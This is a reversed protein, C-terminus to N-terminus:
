KTLYKKVKEIDEDTANRIDSLKYQWNLKSWKEKGLDHYRLLELQVTNPLSKLLVNLNELEEENDTIDPIVVYRIVTKVTNSVYHINSLILNNNINTLQRHLQPTAAKLSFQVIDTYPLVKNWVDNNVNGSTDLVTSFGKEKVCKFVEAVFDAQQLPEGGSITIGGGSKEYFPRYQEMERLVNDVSILKNGKSWTDPNHCFICGIDCGALFLVMRIGPGDVTGFTEISHYYAQMKKNM